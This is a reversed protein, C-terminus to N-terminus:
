ATRNEELSPAPAPAADAAVPAVEAPAAEQTPAATEAPTGEDDKPRSRREPPPKAGSIVLARGLMEYGNFKAHAAKAAEVSDMEVFGFGKSRHNDRDRAIEVNRVTGSQSFLDFLDSDGADYSLNGVYLRPTTIDAAPV